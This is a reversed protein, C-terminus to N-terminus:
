RVKARTVQTEKQGQYESHAKVTADMEVALPLVQGKDLCAPDSGSAFWSFLHGESDEFKYLTTVGYMGEIYSPRRVLSVQLGKYRKGIEGFFNRAKPEEVAKQAKELERQYSAPLSVILGFDQYRGFGVTALAKANSTYSNTPVLTSAWELVRAAEEADSPRIEVGKTRLRGELAERTLDATSAINLEEAKARSIWGFARIVALAVTVVKLIDWGDRKGFRFSDGEFGEDLTNIAELFQAQELLNAVTEHGLFDAACDTGVQMTQGEANRVFIFKKRNRQMRCHECNLSPNQLYSLPIERGPVSKGLMVLDGHENALPEGVGLFVWGGPLCFAEQGGTITVQRFAVKTPFMSTVVMHGGTYPDEVIVDRYVQKTFEEGVQVTFPSTNLGKRSARKQLKEIKSMVEELNWVPVEFTNATFTTNQLM